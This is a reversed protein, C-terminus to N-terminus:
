LEEEKIEDIYLHYLEEEEEDTRLVSAAVNYDQVESAVLVRATNLLTLGRLSSGVVMLEVESEFPNILEEAFWTFGASATSAALYYMPNLNNM